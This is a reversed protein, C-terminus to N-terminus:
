ATKTVQLSPFLPTIADSMIQNDRKGISEGDIATLRLHYPGGSISGAGLGAGWGRPGLGSALHGGFLLMVRGDADTVDFNITIVGYDSGAEAPDTTHTIGSTGTIDGGYMVFQRDAQPLEHASTPQPGGPTVSNPDSPIPFVSATPDSDPICLSAPNLDQCKDANVYTYNWTALYDYAHVQSGSDKRAMYSIQVSHAGTTDFDVVLRQPVVEDEAYDNHTANLIGNIWSDCDLTAPKPNGIQCQSYDSINTAASAAIPLLPGAIINFIIAFAAPLVTFRHTRAQSRDM